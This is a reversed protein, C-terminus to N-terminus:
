CSLCKGKGKINGITEDLLRYVSEESNFANHATIIVDDQKILFREARVIKSGGKFGKKLDKENELVDLGVKLGRKKVAEALAVTDVLGGRATNILIAGKKMKGLNKSNLLHENEETLPCHLSVVDAKRLLSDLSVYKLKRNKFIDYVIVNMGFGKAMKIVNLGIKGAGILGLTKGKLDVGRLGDLNVDGKEMREKAPCIKRSLNLILAFTHEAVTNEAYTSANYVKIGKKKCAELDIHDYGTSMTCISKLNPLKDLLQETFNSYVFNCIIEADQIKKVHRDKIHEKFFKLKHGKLKKKLYKEQWGEVEFIAIEM